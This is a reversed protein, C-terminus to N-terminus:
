SALQDGGLVTLVRRQRAGEVAEPKAYSQLTTSISEHGLSSAVVHASAGNARAYRPSDLGDRLDLGVRGTGIEHVASPRRPAERSAPRAGKAIPRRLVWAVEASQFRHQERM